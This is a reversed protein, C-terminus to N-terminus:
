DKDGGLIFGLENPNLIEAIEEDDSVGVDIIKEATVKEFEEYDPGATLEDVGDPLGSCKHKQDLLFLGQCLNCKYNIESM